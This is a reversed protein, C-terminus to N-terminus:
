WDDSPWGTIPVSEIGADLRAQKRANCVAQSARFNSWELAQSEDVSVPVFHDLQWSKPGSKAAYDIASDCLHCVEGAAACVKRFQARLIRYKAKLPGTDIVSRRCKRVHCRPRLAGPWRRAPRVARDTVLRVRRSSRQSRRRYGPRM